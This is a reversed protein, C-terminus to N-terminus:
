AQLSAAPDFSASPFVTCGGVIMFGLAINIGGIHHTPMHCCTRHSPTLKIARGQALLASGASLNTHIGGKPLSTTGSTFVILAVDDDDSQIPSDMPTDHPQELKESSGFLEYFNSWSEAINSPDTELVARVSMSSVLDAATNSVKTAIGVDGAIIAKAGSTKLMHHVETANTVGRPNLPVLSM